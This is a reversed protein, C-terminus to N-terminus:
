GNQNTEPKTTKAKEAEQEADTEAVRALFGSVTEKVEEWSTNNLAQRNDAGPKNHNTIVVQFGNDVPNIRILITKTMAIVQNAFQARNKTQQV